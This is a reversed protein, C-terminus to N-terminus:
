RNPEVFFVQPSDARVPTSQEDDVRFDAASGGSVKQNGPIPGRVTQAWLLLCVAKAWFGSGCACRRWYKSCAGWVLPTNWLMFRNSLFV